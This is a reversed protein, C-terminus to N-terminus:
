KQLLLFCPASLKPNLIGALRMVSRNPIKELLYLSLCIPCQLTPNACLQPHFQHLCIFDMRWQRRLSWVLMWWPMKWNCWAHEAVSICLTIGCCTKIRLVGAVCSDRSENWGIEACLKSSSWSNARGVTIFEGALPGFYIGCPFVLRNAFPRPIM